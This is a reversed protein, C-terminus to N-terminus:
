FDIGFPIVQAGLRPKLIQHSADSKQRLPYFAASITTPNLWVVCKQSVAMVLEWQEDIGRSNANILSGLRTDKASEFTDERQFCKDTLEYETETHGSFALGNRQPLITAPISLFGGYSSPV